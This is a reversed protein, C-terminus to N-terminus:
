ASLERALVLAVDDPLERSPRRVLEVLAAAAAALEPGAAIRAIDAARAYALLGASAVLLTGGALPGARVPTVRAGALEVVDGGRIVWAGGAGGSAGTIGAPTVAVTLAGLAIVLGDASSEVDVRLEGHGRRPAVEVVHVFPSLPPSPVM